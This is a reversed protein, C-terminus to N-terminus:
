KCIGYLLTDTLLNIQAPDNKKLSDTMLSIEMGRLAIAFVKTIESVDPVEFVRNDVGDQIISSLMQIEYDNFEARIKQVSSLHNLYDDRLVSYAIVLKNLYNMRINVYNRLKDKPNAIDKVSDNIAEIMMGTERRVVEYLLHEKDRFYHYLTAKGMRTARAIQEMTTKNLGFLSFVHRATVIILERKQERKNM